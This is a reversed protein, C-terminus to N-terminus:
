RKKELWIHKSKLKGVTVSVNKKKGERVLKVIVDTGPETERVADVLNAPRRIKEDNFFQIIDDKMIGAEDAAKGKVVRTVRVGFSIDLEEKEKVSLKEISVGLYGKQSVKADIVSTTGILFLSLVLIMMMSRKLLFQKM